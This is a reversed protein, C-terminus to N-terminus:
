GRAQSEALATRVEEPSMADVKALLTKEIEASLGAATPSDFVTRLSLGVGFADRIEAMLQAGLLSHGGLLFFNDKVGVQDTGLLKALIAVLRQEVANRPDVFADDAIRNKASPAPLGAFDIKGNATMPLSELRVFVSPVMYGPLRQRLFEQLEGAKLESNAKFVVYAVLYRDGESDVRTEVTSALVSPHADLATVIESPEIRFGRIKIQEDIRGLFAIQGDPLYRALDGTKYIRGNPHFPDPVFKEATLQPANLYGRAVGAGGIYIEGPVGAPVQQQREDLIYIRVNAIPRGIPPQVDPREGSSIQGSTAVVTCETPGYNNVLKFPLSAPPYRHLTDAGTLMIRLATDPPWELVVMREALPTQAFTITIRQRVLWNRLAEPDGCTADDALHVSAGATLYPWLEWVAADFGPSAVQSARDAPQVGFAAQHWSVLNALSNHTIQVGKPRGTSGSTYIVYALNEGGVASEPSKESQDAIEHEEADVYIIRWPGKPLRQALRRRTLLVPPQADNLMVALREQPYAPDMPVYAGGSKLVGLAAVVMAASREMCVGVLTDPGVGHAQLLNGIQNSRRGLEGYTVVEDGAV